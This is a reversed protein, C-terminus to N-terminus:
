FWFGHQLRRHAGAIKKAHHRIGHFISGKVAHFQIGDRAPDGLLKIGLRMDCHVPELTDVKGIVPKIQRHAVHGKAVVLYGVGPIILLM